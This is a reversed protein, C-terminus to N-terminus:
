KIFKRKLGDVLFMCGHVIVGLLKHQQQHAFFTVVIVEYIQIEEITLPM